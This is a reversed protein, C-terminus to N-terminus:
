SLFFFLSGGGLKRRTELCGSFFQFRVLFAWIAFGLLFDGRDAEPSVEEQSQAGQFLTLYSSRSSDDEAWTVAGKLMRHWQLEIQDLGIAM